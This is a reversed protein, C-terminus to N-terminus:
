VMEFGEEEQIPNIMQSVYEEKIGSLSIALDILPSPILKGLYGPLLEIICPNTKSDFSLNYNYALAEVAYIMDMTVANAHCLLSFIGQSDKKQVPSSALVQPYTHQNKGSIQESDIYISYPIYHYNRSIVDAVRPRQSQLNFWWMSSKANIEMGTTMYGILSEPSSSFLIKRLAENREKDSGINLVYMYYLAPISIYEGEVLDKLGYVREVGKPVITNDHIHALILVYEKMRKGATEDDYQYTYFDLMQFVHSWRSGIAARNMHYKGMSEDQNWSPYRYSLSQM